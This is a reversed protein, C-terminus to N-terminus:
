LFKLEVKLVCLSQPKLLTNHILNTKRCVTNEEPSKTKNIQEKFPSIDIYEFHNFLCNQKLIQQMM